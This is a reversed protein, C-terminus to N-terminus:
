KSCWLDYRTRSFLSTSKYYALSEELVRKYEKSGPLLGDFCGSEELSKKFAEWTAGKGEEGARLREQYLMEFGCAIKMGLEAETFAIRDERSPMPYCRPAQFRQQVQLKIMLEAGYICPYAHNSSCLYIKLLIIKIRRM